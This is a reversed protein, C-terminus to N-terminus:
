VDKWWLLPYKRVTGNVISWQLIDKNTNKNQEVTLPGYIEMIKMVSFIILGYQM